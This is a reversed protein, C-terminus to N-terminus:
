GRCGRLVGFLFDDAAQSYEDGCNRDFPNTSGGLVRGCQDHDLCDKTWASAISFVGPCGSGCRGLCRDGNVLKRDRYTQGVNDDYVATVYTNKRICTIGDDNGKSLNTQKGKFIIKEYSYNSPSKAWYELLKLLTFEAMTFNDVSGDKFLYESIQEGIMLLTEKEKNSLVVSKGDIEIYETDYDISAVLRVDNISVKLTYYNSKKAVKYAIQFGNLEKEGELQDEQHIELGIIEDNTTSEQKDCSNLLVLFLFCLVPFRFQIKM